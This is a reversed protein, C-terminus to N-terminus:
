RAASLLEVLKDAMKRWATKGANKTAATEVPESDAHLAATTTDAALAASYKAAILACMAGESDWVASASCRAAEAAASVPWTTDSQEAERAASEALVWEDDGMAEGRVARKHLEAVKTIAEYNVEVVTLLGSEALLWHAFSHWVASLDAGPEIAGLFREPWGKVGNARLGDFIADALWVVRVPIGLKTEYRVYQHGYWHLKGGCRKESFCCGFQHLRHQHKQRQRVRSLYKNKISHNSRYALM